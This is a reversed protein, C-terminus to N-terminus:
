KKIIVSGTTTVMAGMGDRQMNEKIEKGKIFNYNMALLWIVIIPLSGGEMEIYEM